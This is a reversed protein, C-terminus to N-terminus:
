CAKVLSRLESTAPLSSFDPSHGYFHTALLNCRILASVTGSTAATYAIAGARLSPPLSSCASPEPVCFCTCQHHFSKLFPLIYYMAKVFVYNLMETYNNKKQKGADFFYQITVSTIDYEVSNNFAVYWWPNSSGHTTACNRSNFETSAQGDVAKDASNTNQGNNYLSTDGFTSSQFAV